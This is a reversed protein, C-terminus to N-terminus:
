CRRGAASQLSHTMIWPLDPNRVTWGPNRRCFFLTQFAGLVLM